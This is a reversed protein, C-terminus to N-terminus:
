GFVIGVIFAYVADIGGIIALCIGCVAISRLALARMMPNDGARSLKVVHFVILAVLGITVLSLFASTFFNYTNLFNEMEDTKIMKFVYEEITARNYM